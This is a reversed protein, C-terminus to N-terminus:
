CAQSEVEKRAGAASSQNHSAASATSKATERARQSNAYQTLFAGLVASALNLAIPAPPAANAGSSSPPSCSSPPLPAEDQGTGMAVLTEVLKQQLEPGLNHLNQELASVQEQEEKCPIMSSNLGKDEEELSILFSEIDPDSGLSPLDEDDVDMGSFPAVDYGGAGGMPLVVDNFNAGGSVSSSLGTGFWTPYCREEENNGKNSMHHQGEENNYPNPSGRSVKRRKPSEAKTTTRNMKDLMLDNVLSTLKDINNSMEQLRDKLQGVESKLVSVEQDNNAGSLSLMSGFLGHSLTSLM